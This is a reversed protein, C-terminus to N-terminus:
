RDQLRSSIFKGQSIVFEGEYFEGDLDPDDMVAQIECSLVEERNATLGGNWNRV